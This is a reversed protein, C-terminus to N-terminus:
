PTSEGEEEDAPVTPGGTAQEQIVERIEAQEEAQEQAQEQEVDEVLEEADEEFPQPEIPTGPEIGAPDGVIVREGPEIGGRLIQWPGAVEGLDVTRARAVNDEDLVFVQPGMLGQTLAIEPVALVDFRKLGEIRVRAFQGPLVRGDPNAFSASAQVTSTAEDVRSGLFDLHGQLRESDGNGQSSVELSAGIEEISQGELQRRLEFADRQPLQFRVELPDLPTITALETGANVLNGVNIQSLGIMGAVPASVETYGLDIEASELAAQAQAVRAQAVALEARAQDYEQRSVSNQSLLREFREADRQARALEARASQLDAERQNVTAQYFDPEISYLQQGKEVLQGPEFHRQELFGTVRAVLTVEDDSRLLSPYSKDLPLDQLAAEMVAVPHPPTEQQEASAQQEPAEQGCAALLTGMGVALLALRVGSVMTRM